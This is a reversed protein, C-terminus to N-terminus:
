APTLVEVREFDLAQRVALEGIGFDERIEDISEGVRRREGIVWTAVGSDKLIPAGFQIQPDIVIPVDKGRPFWRIALEYMRNYDFEQIRDQIPEVWIVQGRASAEELLKNVWPGEAQKLDNLLRAGDTKIKLRAFPYETNFRRELYEYAIRIRQLPIGMKRLTAVFAVEVLQLYSLPIGRHRKGLVRAGRGVPLRPRGFYWRTITVPHIRALFAAETVTYAPLYLRRLWPDRPIRAGTEQTM